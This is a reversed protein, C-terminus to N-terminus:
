GGWLGRGAGGACWKVEGHSLSQILTDVFYTSANEAVCAGSVGCVLAYAHERPNMHGSRCPLGQIKPGLAGRFRVLRRREKVFNDVGGPGALFPPARSLKGESLPRWRTGLIPKLRATLVNRDIVRKRHLPQWKRTARTRGRHRVQWMADLRRTWTLLLCALVM